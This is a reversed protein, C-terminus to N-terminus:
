QVYPVLSCACRAHAPFAPTNGVDFIEKHLSRCYPCVNSELDNLWQVREIGNTALVTERSSKAVALVALAALPAVQVAFLGSSKDAVQEKVVEDEEQLVQGDSIIQMYDNTKKEAFAPLAGILLVSSTNPSTKIQTESTANRIAQEEPVQVDLDTRRNLVRRTFDAEYLALEQLEQLMEITAKELTTSIDDRLMTQGLTGLAQDIITDVKKFAKKYNKALTKSYRDLFVQHKIFDNELSM